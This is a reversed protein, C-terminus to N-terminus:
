AIRVMMSTTATLRFRTNGGGTRVAGANVLGRCQRAQAAAVSRSDRFVQRFLAKPTNSLIAAGRLRGHGPCVTMVASEEVVLRVL